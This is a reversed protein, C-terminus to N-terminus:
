MNPFRISQCIFRKGTFFAIIASLINAQWLSSVILEPNVRMVVWFLRILNIVPGYVSKPSGIFYRVNEPVLIKEKGTWYLLFLFPEFESKDLGALLDQMIREAGGGSISTIVFLIKKKKM